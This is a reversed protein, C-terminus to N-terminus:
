SQQSRKKRPKAPNGNVVAEFRELESDGPASGSKLAALMEGAVAALSRFWAMKASDRVRKKEACSPCRDHEGRERGCGCLGAARRRSKLSKILNEDTLKM